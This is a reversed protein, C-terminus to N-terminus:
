NVLYISYEKTYLYLFISSRIPYRGRLEIKLLQDVSIANTIGDHKPDVFLISYRV